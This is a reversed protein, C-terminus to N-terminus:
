HRLIWVGTTVLAVALLKPPTLAEGFIAAGLLLSCVAEVGLVITNGAGVDGGRLAFAQLTAGIGFCAYLGAAPLPRHLGDSAKMCLAGVAYLLAAAISLLLPRNV